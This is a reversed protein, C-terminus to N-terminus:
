LMGGRWTELSILKLLIGDVISVTYSLNRNVLGVQHVKYVNM